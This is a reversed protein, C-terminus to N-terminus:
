RLMSRSDFSIPIGSYPMIFKPKFRRSWKERAQKRPSTLWLVARLASRKFIIRQRSQHRIM